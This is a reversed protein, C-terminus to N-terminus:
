INNVTKHCISFCYFDFLTSSKKSMISNPIYLLYVISQSFIFICSFFLSRHLSFQFGHHVFLSNVFWLELDIFLRNFSLFMLGLLSFIM